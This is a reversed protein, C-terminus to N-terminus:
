LWTHIFGGALSRLTSTRESLKGKSHVGARAKLDTKYPNIASAQLERRRNRAERKRVLEARGVVPVLEALRLKAGLKAQRRRHQDAACRAPVAPVKM